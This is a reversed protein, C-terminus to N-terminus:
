LPCARENARHFRWRRRRLGPDRALSLCAWEAVRHIMERDICDPNCGFDEEQSNCIVEDDVLAM